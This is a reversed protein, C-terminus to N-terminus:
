PHLFNLQSCLFLNIIVLVLTNWAYCLFIKILEEPQLRELPKIKRENIDEFSSKLNKDVYRKYEQSNNLKKEQKGM